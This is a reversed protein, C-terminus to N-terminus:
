VRLAELEAPVLDKLYIQHSIKTACSPQSASAVCLCAAGYFALSALALKRTLAVPGHPRTPWGRDQPIQHISAPCSYGFCSNEGINYSKDQIKPNESGRENRRYDDFRPRAMESSGLRRTTVHPNSQVTRTQPSTKNLLPFFIACAGENKLILTNKYLLPEAELKLAKCTRLLSLQPRSPSTTSKVYPVVEGVFLCKNYILHRIEPPLKSSSHSSQM